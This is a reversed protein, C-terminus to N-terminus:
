KGLAAKKFFISGIHSNESKQFTIQLTSFVQFILFNLNSELVGNLFLWPALINHIKLREEVCMHM